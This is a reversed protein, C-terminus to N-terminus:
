FDLHAYMKKTQRTSTKCYLIYANRISANVFYSLIYKWAKVSFYGVDYKMCMQDHCDVGNMYRNYLQINQSQNVQIVKHGLRRDTHVDNRPNSNTSVLRVIRSDQWVTAVLNSSGDQYSKFTGHIIRVPKHISEPLYKRNM